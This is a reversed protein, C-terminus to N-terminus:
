RIEFLLLLGEDGSCYPCDEHYCGEEAGDKASMDVDNNHNRCDLYDRELFDNPDDVHGTPGPTQAEGLGQIPVEQSSGHIEEISFTDYVVELM